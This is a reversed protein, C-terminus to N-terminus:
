WYFCFKWLVLQLNKREENFQNSGIVYKNERRVQSHNSYMGSNTPTPTNLADTSQASVGIHNRLRDTLSHARNRNVSGMLTTTTTTSTSLEYHRLTDGGRLRHSPDTAINNHLHSNNNTEISFNDIDRKLQVLKFKMDRLQFLNM